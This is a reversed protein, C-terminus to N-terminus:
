PRMTSPQISSRDLEQVDVLHGGNSAPVLLDGLSCAERVM